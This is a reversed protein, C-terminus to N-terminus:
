RGTGYRYDAFQWGTPLLTWLRVYVATGSTPLNTLTVSRNLGLSQGYLDNSGQTTGAYLFYQQAQGGASWSFTASGGSLVSGQAPSVIVAKSPKAAAVPAAVQYTYDSYQWSTGFRTWLRVYFTSGPAPLTVTAVRGLGTSTALIDNAGASKGAYFFYEDAGSGANWTFNASTGSLTSGPVPSTIAAKQLVAPTQTPPPPTATTTVAAAGYIANLGALDDSTLTRKISGQTYSAYMVAASNASHNLGLAHGFEHTVVSQLDVDVGTDSTTWHWGPAIEMDFELENSGSYITCTVALVSGSQAYWGVTNQGDTTGSCASQGAATTGAGAFTFNSGAADWTAASAAIANSEANLGAPKGTANYRYSANKNPWSYGALVYGSSATTTSTLTADGLRRTANQKAAEAAEQLHGTGDDLLLLEVHVTYQNGDRNVQFELDQDKFQKSGSDAQASGAMAVVGLTSGVTLAAV